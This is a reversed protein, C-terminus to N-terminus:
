NSDGRKIIARAARVGSQLAGGVTGSEEADTAEGAFYLTDAVPEALSERAGDGGVLVYSYAGRAFPDRQWAHVIAAELAPRNGFLLRVGALAEEILRADQLGALRSAKPGGAWAILVPARVPLPTWFTPFPARPAHFFATGPWRKEWFPQEFRLVAKVVPGSALQRLARQKDPLAPRFRVAGSQLVGLPLTVIARRAKVAFRKGLFEGEVEVQERRWRIERAVAQLRLRAGDALAETALHDLLPQYGAALRPQSSGMEGGTWEEVVSRASIRAPDAADFGQVMLRAFLRTRAQLRRRALFTKFSVDEPLNASRVARQAEAFPEVRRLRGKEGYRSGRVSDLTAAGARKLLQLTARPRGHVFEAGLELPVNVGPLHRTWCRGGIRDRAELMLVRRGARALEAAAALGAAGAGIVIVESPLSM